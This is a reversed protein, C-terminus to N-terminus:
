QLKPLPINPARLEQKRTWLQCKSYSEALYFRKGLIEQNAFVKNANTQCSGTKFIPENGHDILLSQLFRFTSPDDEFRTLLEEIEKSNLVAPTDLRLSPRTKLVHGPMTRPASSQMIPDSSWFGQSPNFSQVFCEIKAAPYLKKVASGLRYALSQKVQITREPKEFLGGVEIVIERGLGYSMMDAPFLVTIDNEDKLGLQIISAEVIAKHLTRLKRESQKALCWVKIVPM